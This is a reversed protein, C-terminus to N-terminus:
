QYPGKTNTVTMDLLLQKLNEDIELSNIRNHIRIIFAKVEKEEKEEKVEIKKMFDLENDKVLTKGAFIEYISAAAAFADQRQINEFSTSEYFGVYKPTYAHDFPGKSTLMTDNDISRGMQDLNKPKIDGHAINLNTLTLILRLVGVTFEYKDEISQPASFFQHADQAITAMGLRKSIMKFSKCGMTPKCQNIFGHSKTQVTPLYNVAVCVNKLESYQQMLAKMNNSPKKDEATLAIKKAVVEGDKSKFVLCAEQVFKTLGAGLAGNDGIPEGHVNVRNYRGGHGTKKVIRASINKDDDMQITIPHLTHTKKGNQFETECLTKYQSSDVITIGNLEEPTM